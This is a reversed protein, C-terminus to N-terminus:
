FVDSYIQNIVLYLPVVLLRRAAEAPDMKSRLRQTLVKEWM